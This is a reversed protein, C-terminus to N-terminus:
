NILKNHESRKKQVDCAKSIILKKSKRVIKLVFQVNKIQIVKEKINKMVITLTRCPYKREHKM